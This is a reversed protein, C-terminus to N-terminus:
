AVRTSVVHVLVRRTDLVYVFIANQIRTQESHLRTRTSVVYVL